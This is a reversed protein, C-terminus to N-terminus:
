PKEMHLGTEVEMNPLLWCGDFDWLIIKFPICKNESM